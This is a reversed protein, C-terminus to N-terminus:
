SEGNGDREDEVGGERVTREWDRLRKSAEATSLVTASQEAFLYKNSEILSALAPWDISKWGDEYCGEILGGAVCLAHARARREEKNYRAVTAQRRARLRAIQADLDEIRKGYDTMRVVDERM